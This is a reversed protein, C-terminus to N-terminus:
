LSVISVSTLNFGFENYITFCDVPLKIIGSSSFLTSSNRFCKAIFFIYHWFFIIWISYHKFSAIVECYPLVWLWLLWFFLVSILFCSTLFDNTLVFESHLFWLALVPKILDYEILRHTTTNLPRVVITGTNKRLSWRFVFLLWM